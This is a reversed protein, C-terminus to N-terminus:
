DRPPCGHRLVDYGSTGQHGQNEHAQKGVGLFMVFKAPVPVQESGMLGASGDAGLDLAAVTNPARIFCAPSAAGSTSM